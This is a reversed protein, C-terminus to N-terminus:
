RTAILYRVEEELAYSGTPTEFSHFVEILADRVADDGVTRGARVMPPAAMVGRLLTELNPYSEVLEIYGAEKPSLGAKTALAELAGEEHLAQGAKTGGTAPKVPFLADIAEFMATSQCREPRGFVTMAVPAEPLVVRRAEGLASVMDAAIFFSNFGTVVDFSDDAWPLEEMDGVQFDGDPIRERAIEVLAPTADLGSVRAGRDAAMRCFRGAGCGVDLVRTEGRVTIRELIHRYVPVGWGNWGEMVDAWDRAREGWLEAQAPASGTSKQKVEAM